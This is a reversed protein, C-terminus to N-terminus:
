GPPILDSYFERVSHVAVALSTTCKIPRAFGYSKPVFVTCYIGRRVIGFWYKSDVEGYCVEQESGFTGYVYKERRGKLKVSFGVDTLYRMADHLSMSSDSFRRKKKFWGFTAEVADELTPFHMEVPVQGVMSSATWESGERRVCARIDSLTAGTREDFARVVVIYDEDRFQRAALGFTHFREIAEQLTV